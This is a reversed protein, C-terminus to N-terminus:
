AGHLREYGLQKEASKFIKKWPITLWRLNSFHYYNISRVYFFLHINICMLVIKKHQNFLIYQIIQFLIYSIILEFNQYIELIAVLIVVQQRNQPQVWM